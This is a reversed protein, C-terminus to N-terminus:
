QRVATKKVYQELVHHFKHWSSVSLWEYDAHAGGGDPRFMIVPIGKEDFYRADSSGHARIPRVPAGLAGEYINIFDKVLPHEMDLDFNNAVMQKEITVNYKERLSLLVKEIRSLDEKDRYRIDIGVLATDLGQNLADGGAELRSVTMTSNQHDTMDFANALESIFHILKNGAGDGEWPRSAHHSEGNVRLLLQLVGKAGVSMTGFGEGADPLICIDCTYLPQRMIAGVGNSGGYEEDGTLLLSIDYDKPNDLGELLHIFSATAFLMDFAGRGVIKDGDEHFVDGDPVVDIHGQLMIKAHMTDQTSMYLSGVGANTLRKSYLGKQKLRTEVYDLLLGVAQQDSTVSRFNMLTQLTEIM